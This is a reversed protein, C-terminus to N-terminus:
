PTCADVMIVGLRTVCVSDRGHANHVVIPQTAALSTAFGRRDFTVTVADKLKAKYVDKISVTRALPVQLGSSDTTVTIDDITGSFTTLRGRRMAAARAATLHSAVHQKASRLDAQEKYGRLRPVAMVTIIGFLTFVTLIEVFTFGLRSHLAPAGRDHHTARSRADNFAHLPM